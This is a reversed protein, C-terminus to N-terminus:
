AAEVPYGIETMLKEIQGQTAPPEFSITVLKTDEQAQVSKVGPLEGVENQITHVCHGCSINPAKVTLTTM